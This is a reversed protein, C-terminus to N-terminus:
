GAVNLLWLRLGLAILGVAVVSLLGSVVLRRRVGVEMMQRVSIYLLAPAVFLSLTCPISLLLHSRFLSAWDFWGSAFAYGGLLFAAVSGLLVQAQTFHIVARREGLTATM